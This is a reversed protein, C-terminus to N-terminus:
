YVTSCKIKIVHELCLYFCADMLMEARDQVTSRSSMSYIDISVYGNLLVAIFVRVGSVYEIVNSHPRSCNIKLSAISCIDISVHQGPLM